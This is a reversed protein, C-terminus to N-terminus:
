AGADGNDHKVLTNQKLGIDSMKLTEENMLSIVNKWRPALFYKLPLTSEFHNKTMFLYLVRDNGHPILETTSHESQIHFTGPELGPTEM